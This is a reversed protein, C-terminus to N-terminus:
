QVILKGVMGAEAHGPVSCHYEYEGAAANITVTDSDGGNLLKSQVKLDSVVFDHQLVGKNVITVQVDTNAPITLEKPDFNIDITHVEFGSGSAAPTAEGAPSAEPTAISSTGGIKLAVLHALPKADATPPITFPGGAPVYIYDGSVALPANVGAPAQWQWVESGDSTKFARIIGDLGGTFVLDNVVTAAAYAPTQIETNWLIKGTAGDLAVLEGTGSFIDLESAVIQGGEYVTRLNVIPAYVVGDAFAMSTEVGGLTGPFVEIQQGEPIEQVDDNQHKGVPTRWLEEGTEQNAAVVVGHKGSTYVVKTDTGNISVNGLVPTLQNDLDFLDHPKVNIYWDISASDPNIKILSDAYNNDGMRSTASPFEPTGPYPAANGVGVYLQGDDDVSPVHWLGGGSNVRANNWLNDVTTDFYWLIKGTSADLAFIFGRQGGNYFAEPTGPITSIYVTSDYALPAMTIGEHRYGKITSRWVEEGTDQKAAIVVGDGGLTYFAMGYGLGVGNPGGSPVSNNYENYWVQEGTDAKLAYVNSMADQQYLVGDAIVPNAVLAGFPAGINVPMSWEVGLQSVTESTIGSTTIHRTAKLDFNESPWNGEVGFEPPVADGLPTATPFDAGSSETQAEPSAAPSADPTADQASALGVAAGAIGLGLVTGTGVLKRRSLLARAQNESEHDQNTM